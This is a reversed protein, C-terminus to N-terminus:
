ASCYPVSQALAAYLLLWLMLCLWGCDSKFWPKRASCTSASAVLACRGAIFLLLFPFILSPVFFLKFPFVTSCHLFSFPTFHIFFPLSPSLLFPWSFFLASFALRVTWYVNGDARRLTLLETWRDTLQPRQSNIIPRWRSCYGCRPRM